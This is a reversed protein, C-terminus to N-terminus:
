MDILASAVVDLLFGKEMISQHIAMGQQLARMQACVPLISVFTTADPEVGALQMQKFTELAMHVFGNQVYGAIMANWSIVNRQPMEEFLKLAEDLVGNQTYGAIMATWSFVDRQPIKDFLERAKRISGCKAYMDVLANAVVDSLFDREMISRHIEVGKELSRTKACAPLISSFTYQDSQIGTRQMQHFLKLAERPFGHRRYATILVNWSISDRETMDDFVRRSEVLNSCKAYMSILKNQFFIAAAFEFGKHTTHSHIQKSQLLAKKSIFTQLLQSYAYYNVISNNTKLLFHLAEKM